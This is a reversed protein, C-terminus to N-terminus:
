CSTRGKDVLSHAHWGLYAICAMSTTAPPSPLLFPRTVTGRGTSLFRHSSCPDFTLDRYQQPTSSVPLCPWGDQRLLTTKQAVLHKWCDACTWLRVHQQWGTLLITWARGAGRERGACASASFRMAAAMGPPPTVAFCTLSHTLQHSFCHTDVCHHLTMPLWTSATATLLAVRAAELRM